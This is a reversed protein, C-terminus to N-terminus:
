VHKWILKLKLIFWGIMILQSIYLGMIVGNIEFKSIMFHAMTLSFVINLVYAIFIDKTNDITRLAYRLPLGIFVLLYLFAMLSLAPNMGSQLNGNTWSVIQETFVLVLAIVALTIAGGTYTVKTLYYLLNGKGNLKYIRAARLPVQHELSLFFVNLVGMITQVMRIIGLAVPGLLAAAALLFYNSSFWQLFATAVLWKGHGWLKLFARVITTNKKLNLGQHILGVATSIFFCIFLVNWLNHISLNGHYYLFGIGLTILLYSLADLAFAFSPKDLVYYQKRLFDHFLFFAVTMALPFSQNQIQGDFLSASFFIMFFSAIAALASFPIQIWYLAQQFEAQDESAMQPGLSFQPQILFAQQVSSAFLLVLWGLSFLGYQDLGMVRSIFVALLFNFGSVVMQDLLTWIKSREFRFKNLLSYRM